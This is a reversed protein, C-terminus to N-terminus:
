KKFNLLVRKVAAGINQLMFRIHMNRTCRKELKVQRQREKEEQWIRLYELQEEDDRLREEKTRM